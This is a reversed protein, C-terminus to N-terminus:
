RAHTPEKKASAPPIRQAIKRSENVWLLVVDRPAGAPPDSCQIASGWHRRIWDRAEKKTVAM